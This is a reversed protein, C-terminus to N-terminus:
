FRSIILHLSLSKIEFRVRLQKSYQTVVVAAFKEPTYKAASAYYQPLYNGLYDNSGLGVYYLCSKLHKKAANRSGLYAVLRSIAAEHNSLQENM